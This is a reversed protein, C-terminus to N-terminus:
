RGCSGASTVAGGESRGAGPRLAQVQGEEVLQAVVVARTGGQELTLSRVDVGALSAQVVQCRADPSLAPTLWLTAEVCKM